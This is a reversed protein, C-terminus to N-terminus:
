SAGLLNLFIDTFRWCTQACVFSLSFDAPFLCRSMHVVHASGQGGGGPLVSPDGRQGTNGADPLLHSSLFVLPAAM